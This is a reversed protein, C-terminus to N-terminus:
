CSQNISEIKPLFSILEKKYSYERKKFINDTSNTECIQGKRMVAVRDCM